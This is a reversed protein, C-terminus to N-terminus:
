HICFNLCYVTSYLVIIHILMNTLQRHTYSCLFKTFYIKLICSTYPFYAFLLYKIIRKGHLLSNEDEGAFQAQPDSLHALRRGVATRLEEPNRM